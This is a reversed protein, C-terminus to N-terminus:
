ADQYSSSKRKSNFVNRNVYNHSLISLISKITFGMNTKTRFFRIVLLAVIPLKQKCLVLVFNLVPPCVYICCIIIFCIIIQHTCFFRIYFLNIPIYIQNIFLICNSECRVCEWVEVGSYLKMHRCAAGRNAPTEIGRRPRVIAPSLLTLGSHSGTDNSCHTKCTFTTQWAATSTFYM